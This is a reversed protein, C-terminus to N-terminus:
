STRNRRGVFERIERATITWSAKWGAVIEHKFDQYHRQALEVDGLVDILLALALQAPGSGGYGWEFGTPSHNRVNLHLPLSRRSEQHVGTESLGDARIEEAWVECSGDPNRQGRYTCSWALPAAVERLELARSALQERNLQDMQQSRAM